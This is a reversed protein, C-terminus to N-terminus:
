GQIEMLTLTSIGSNEYSADYSDNFNGNIRYTIGEGCIFQVQYTMASTTAPSDVFTFAQTGVSEGHYGGNACIGAYGFGNLGSNLAIATGNRTIRAGWEYGLGAQGVASAALQGVIMIRSSTSSPTISLAFGTINHYTRTTTDSKTDFQMTQVQLITGVATGNVRQWANAKIISM